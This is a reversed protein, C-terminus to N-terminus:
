IIKNTYQLWNVGEKSVWQTWCYNVSRLRLVWDTGWTASHHDVPHVCAGEYYRMHVEMTYDLLLM